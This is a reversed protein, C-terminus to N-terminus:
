WFSIPHIIKKKKQKTTFVLKSKEFDVLKHSNSQIRGDCCLHM